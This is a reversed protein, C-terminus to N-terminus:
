AAASTRRHSHRASRLRAHAAAAGLGAGAAADRRMAAIAGYTMTTPCLTGCEVQAQMLYGAARAAHAGGLAATRWRGRHQQPLRAAAIGRMLAHWSPHFEIRTSANAECTSTICCRRTLSQRPPCADFSAATGLEAGARALEEAPGAAGERRVAEQLARM